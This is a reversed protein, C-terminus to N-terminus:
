LLHAIFKHVEEYHVTTTVVKDQVTTKVESTKMENEKLKKKKRRGFQFLHLSSLCVSLCPKFVEDYEDDSEEREIYEVTGRENYGGGLGPHLYLKWTCVMAVMDMCCTTMLSMCFKALMM